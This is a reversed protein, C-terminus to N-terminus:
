ANNSVASIELTQAWKSNCSKTQHYLIVYPVSMHLLYISIWLICEFSPGSNLLVTKFTCIRLSQTNQRTVHSCFITIIFRDLPDSLFIQLLCQFLEHRIKLLQSINISSVTLNIYSIYCNECAVIQFSYSYLPVMLLNVVLIANLRIDNWSIGNQSKSVSM